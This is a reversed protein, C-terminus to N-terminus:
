KKDKKRGINMIRLMKATKDDRKKGKWYNPAKRRGESYALKDSNSMKIKSAETHKMGWRPSDKGRKGFMPNDKGKSSRM